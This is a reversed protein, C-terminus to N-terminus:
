KYTRSIFDIERVGELDNLKLSLLFFYQSSLNAFDFLVDDVVNDKESHRHLLRVLFKCKTRLIHSYSASTSGQPLVFKDFKSRLEETYITCREFLWDMEEKYIETRMRLAPNVHYMLSGMKVLEEKIGDDLVLSKLLGIYSTIEDTLIEFDCRLDDPNDYLFPYTKYGRYDKM